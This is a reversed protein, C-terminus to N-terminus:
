SFKKDNHQYIFINFITQKQKTYYIFPSQINNVLKSVYRILICVIIVRYMFLCM